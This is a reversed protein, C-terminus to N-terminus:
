LVHRQRSDLFIMGSDDGVVRGIQLGTFPSVYPALLSM